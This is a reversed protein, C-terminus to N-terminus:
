PLVRPLVARGLSEKMYQKLVEARLEEASLSNVYNDDLLHKFPESSLLGKGTVGRLATNFAELQGRLAAADMGQMERVKAAVIEPAPLAPSELVAQVGSMYRLFGERIHHPKVMNIGAWGAKIYKFLAMETRRAGPAAEYLVSISAASYIHTEISKALRLNSGIKSTYVYNWDNDHGVIAGVRGPASPARQRAVSIIYNRDNVRVLLMMRDMTYQYYAGSFSDPTLEEFEAGRMVIPVADNKLGDLLTWVKANHMDGGPLWYSRRVSTPYLTEGPIAPDYMYRATRTLPLRLNARVFAGTGLANNPMLVQAPDGNSDLYQVLPQIQELTPNAAGTPLTRLLSDLTHAVDTPLPTNKAHSEQTLPSVCALLACLLTLYLCTVTARFYSM